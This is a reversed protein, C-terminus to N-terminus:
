AKELEARLRKHYGALCAANIPIFAEGRDPLSEWAELTTRAVYRATSADFGGPPSIEKELDALYHRCVRRHAQAWVMLIEPCARRFAEVQAHLRKRGHLVRARQSQMQEVIRRTEEPSLHGHELFEALAASAGETDDIDRRMAELLRALRRLHSDAAAPSLRTLIEEGEEGNTTMVSEFRYSYLTACNPCRRVHSRDKDNYDFSPIITLRAAATPLLRDEMPAGPTSFAKETSGLRTCIPCGSPSM